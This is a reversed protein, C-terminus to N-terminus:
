PNKYLDEGYELFSESIVSSSNGWDSVLWRGGWCGGGVVYVCIWVILILQRFFALEDMKTPFFFDM